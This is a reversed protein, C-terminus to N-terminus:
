VEENMISLFIYACTFVKQNFSLKFEKAYKLTMLQLLLESPILCEVSLNEKLSMPARLAHSQHSPSTTSYSAKSLFRYLINWPPSPRRHVTATGGMGRQFKRIAVMFLFCCCARSALKELSLFDEFSIIDVSPSHYSALCRLALKSSTSNTLEIM